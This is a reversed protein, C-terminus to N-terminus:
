LRPATKLRATPFRGVVNRLRQTTADDLGSARVAARGGELRVVIRGTARGRAVVDEIERLLEGPARGRAGIVRGDRAEVVLLELARRVALALLALVALILVVGVGLDVRALKSAGGPGMAEAPSVDRQAGRSPRVNCPLQLAAGM